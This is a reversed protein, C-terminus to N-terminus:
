RQAGSLIDFAVGIQILWARAPGLANHGTANDLGFHYSTEAIVSLGPSTPSKVGFHVSATPFDGDYTMKDPGVRPTNTGHSFSYGAGVGGYLAPVTRTHLLLRGGVEVQFYNARENGSPSGTVNNWFLFSPSIWIPLRPHDIDARVGVAYGGGALVPPYHSDVDPGTKPEGSNAYGTTLILQNAQLACLPLLLALLLALNRVNRPTSM